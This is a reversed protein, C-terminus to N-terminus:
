GRWVAEAAKNAHAWGNHDTSSEHMNDMWDCAFYEGKIIIAAKDPCERKLEEAMVMGGKEM